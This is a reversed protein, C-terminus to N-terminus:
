GKTKRPPREVRKVNRGNGPEEQNAVSPATPSQAGTTAARDAKIEEDVGGAPPGDKKAEASEVQGAESPKAGPEGDPELMPVLDLSRQPPTLDLIVPPETKVDPDNISNLVGDWSLLVDCEARKACAMHIADNPRLGEDEYLRCLRNAEEGIARDVPVVNVFDHEFYDLVNQNEDGHLKQKGRKKHVEAFTLASIVIAFVQQEAVTLVSEGIKGRDIEIEKGSADKGTVKEGKIWAILIGSDLYPRKYIKGV